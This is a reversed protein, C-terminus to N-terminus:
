APPTDPNEAPTEDPVPKDAPQPEPSSEDDGGLHLERAEPERLRLYIDGFREHQVARIAGRKVLELIGLVLSVIVGRNLTQGVALESLKIEERPPQGPPAFRKLIRDMVVEQPTDDYTMEITHVAQGTAELLRGFAEILDWLSVDILGDEDPQNEEAEAPKIKEGPRAFRLAREDASEDLALAMEKYRRYEMLQRVLEECPDEWEEEDEEEPAPLLTRSKIEMLTAAMLMFEGAVEVKLKSLLQVHRLYEDTIHAIPINHIDIEDRKVLYLLLDLPGAYADLTVKFDDHDKPDDLRM